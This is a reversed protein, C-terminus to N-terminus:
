NDHFIKELRNWETFLDITALQGYAQAMLTWLIAKAKDTKIFDSGNEKVLHTLGISFPLPNCPFCQNMFAKHLNDQM